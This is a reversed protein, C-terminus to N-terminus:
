RFESFVTIRNANGLRLHSRLTEYLTHFKPSSLEKQPGRLKALSRAILGALYHSPKLADTTKNIEEMVIRWYVSCGVPGLWRRVVYADHCLTPFLQALDPAKPVLDEYIYDAVDPMPCADYSFTSERSTTAPNQDPKSRKLPPPQDPEFVERPRKSTPARSAEQETTEQMHHDSLSPTHALDAISGTETWSQIL